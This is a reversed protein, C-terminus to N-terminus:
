SAAPTADLTQAIAAALEDMGFPKRLVPADRGVAADLQESEAYGTAFLIPLAPRRERLRRAVEAGNMGPMAFDLLVLDPRSEEARALAEEGNEATVVDHGLGELTDALFGRVDPDDDVVLIRAGCAVGAAAEPEADAPPEDPAASVSRRLLIHVRTGQGAASEIRATGGAQRAIGYVQALGLGTGKGLPKTSFFPEMARALVDPAMGEGTDAVTIRVYDDPELEASNEERVLATAITLTGGDPMADRANIALNLIANELQNVDCVAHDAAPDLETRIRVASGITHRLIARMNDIVANVAVPTMSIRQIRSFALLQGTLKAGRRSSELAAEAIRKLRPDEVRRAIMELGGMIPTLLNNFDHAIGGTLQGVAEMKQAQRLAEEAREREAIESTLRDLAASLDATREAVRGELMENVERLAAEAAKADTVDHAVGIFGVHEGDPGWRPQSESRLWRWQGDARLYRGELVFPKLTAEGALSEAVIREIDDPHIRSRWDYDIAEEYSVGLFEAYAINVFGRKRDLKTVWMPVPASDAILRFREESERLKAEALHRATVDYGEVFIGTVRGEKDKIPQYVFDVLREEPEADPKSSIAVAIGHGTFPEGSRYVRDLLEFFGQGAIEPLADRVTRGVLDRKGVLNAYADNALEFCHDPGRLVAIFSPARDFLQRLRDAEEVRRREALVTDTTEMCTCFMGCVAGDEGRLPSYSFTFWTEEEFGKRRMTLPLNEWYTGEGAMAREVLPLIDPWIEAWIDEFRRGLAGPHKDGLIEAYGDNYLFTLEPGWALFMPFKSGLAVGVITKLPQPWGSPDGLPTATWDFTRMRAGMEGGDALFCHASANPLGPVAAAPM